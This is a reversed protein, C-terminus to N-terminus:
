GASLPGFKTVYLAPPTLSAVGVGGEIEAIRSSILKIKTDVEINGHTPKEVTVDGVFDVTDNQPFDLHRGHFRFFRLRANYVSSINFSHRFLSTM